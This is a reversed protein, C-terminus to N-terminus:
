LDSIIQHNCFMFCLVGHFNKILPMSFSSLHTLFTPSLPMLSTCTVCLFDNKNKYEAIVSSLHCNQKSLM